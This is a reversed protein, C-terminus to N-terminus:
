LGRGASFSYRAPDAADSLGQAWAFRSVAPLAAASGALRLFKRRPFKMRRRETERLNM